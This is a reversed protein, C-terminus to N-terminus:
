LKIFIVKDVHLDPIKITKKYEVGEENKFLVTEEKTVLYGRVGILSGKNCFENASSAIGNWLTCNIFDTEYQGDTNKFPRNVALTLNGVMVGSELQRIKPKDTTRGILLVSNYM